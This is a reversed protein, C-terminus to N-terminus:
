IEVDIVHRVVWETFSTRHLEGAALRLSVFESDDVDANLEFGNLM